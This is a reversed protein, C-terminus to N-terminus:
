QLVGSCPDCYDYDLEFMQDFWYILHVTGWCMIWGVICAPVYRWSIEWYVYFSLCLLALGTFFLILKISEIPRPM